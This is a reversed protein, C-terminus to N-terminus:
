VLVRVFPPAKPPHPKYGGLFAELGAPRKAPIECSGTMIMALIPQQNLLVIKVQRSKRRGVAAYLSICDTTVNLVSNSFEVVYM